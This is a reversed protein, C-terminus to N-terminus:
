EKDITSPVSASNVYVFYLLYRMPTLMFMICLKCNYININSMQSAWELANGTGLVTGLM